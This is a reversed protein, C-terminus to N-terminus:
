GGIGQLRLALYAAYGVLLAGGEARSVTRESRLIPVCIITGFLMVPLDFVLASHVVPVGTPSALAAAGLVGLLNFLNSGIVNGVALEGQGRFAAAVSTALEPLATGIALITLGIVTDSMGFARAIRTAGTVAFSAGGLVGLLGLATSSLAIAIAKAGIQQPRVHRIQETRRVIQRGAQAGVLEFFCWAFLGLLLFAGQVRSVSGDLACLLAAVSVGCLLPLDFRILAEPVWLPAVLASAGLILLVNCINSGVVNGLAIGPEGRAAADLCVALEPVSTGFAVVTLGVLAPPIRALQALSVAGRVLLEAGLALLAFGGLLALLSLATM